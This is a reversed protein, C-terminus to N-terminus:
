GSLHVTMQATAQRAAQPGRRVSDIGRERPSSVFSGRQLPHAKGSAGPGVALMLAPLYRDNALRAPGSTPAASCATVAAVLAAALGMRHRTPRRPWGKM